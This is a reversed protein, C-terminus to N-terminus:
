HFRAYKEHKLSQEDSRSSYIFQGKTNESRLNKPRLIKWIFQKIFLNPQNLKMDTLRPRYINHLSTM